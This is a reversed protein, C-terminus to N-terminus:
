VTHSLLIGISNSTAGIAYRHPSRCVTKDLSINNGVVMSFSNWNLTDFRVNEKANVALTLAHTIDRQSCWISYARNGKPKDEANVYGLRINLVSLNKTDSYYRGLAEGWVKTSGYIGAPRTPADVKIM